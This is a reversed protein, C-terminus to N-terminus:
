PVAPERLLAALQAIEDPDFQAVQLDVIVQAFDQLVPRTFLEGLAVDVELGQRVRSIVRVALLSHGGLEFFHDCRGVREVGLVDAWIEALAEEIEDAPAEYEQAAYAGDDPAPLAGRDLKGSPTLPWAELRVYASPVMYEPLSAGLHARLSEADPAAGAVCYAVLREGGRADQRAVVLADRVAPHERLRAEIEGPEIRFGRVKLQFDTRGLFELTGDALWRARDGTRYLRAGPETAFPDPVFREATQGPRGLYGRAVGAGGICLEGAVGVPVPEGARDLVYVRTNAVPRGIPVTARGPEAVCRPLSAATAAESPGYLNHLEVGPVREGFRELLAGPLAEGGCLIRDLGTLNEVEREDLLVQLLSPVLNVTTIRERGIVELLYSPDRHGGPRALVVRAGAMLPLFIERVSGDFSLSTKCLVAERADIGWARRGWSLRNVLTRHQNMVGKPRGTSGSTYIVYALHEPTLAGRGPDTAPQRAWAPTSADLELVPVGAGEVRCRLATQSLVVAPASDALMHRLREAPYEPDLPVYAGGAKLVALLGVVMEPSRELCIGVPVDPGVGLSRLHHALRNARRNLEAYSLHVGEFAVAAADPTRAAQAEVLEHICSARPYDAATRNWEEVVRAREDPPLVEIRGLAREPAAELAGVLGAVAGHMMAAVRGAGFRGKVKATLAFDDGLDTVALTLPYNSREEGHITRMGDLAAPASSAAAAAGHRYNLLATFLPASADVASCRQALALSAHEHRLLKALLAHAQRVGAEAGTEGVPLRIPLTNIFPGMVRDSGEGGQMRGFLVTGFVVDDRGSTRALVQAWAVHFVSAASVGLARARERLRAALPGEVRVRAEDMGSGDSRVDLLGFPATPEDVDGLLETFFARHEDDSVGLRAQAVYNRFPLPPPLTDARGALYAEIESRLVEKATHDGTLHHDLLLLLWRGDAPDRAICLRLMPAERVDIRYHRPDFRARLQEAADGSAPDLAVEEVALSARRWVVQVPERLGEWAVSTRLIDHRDVVAQFAALYRDLGERTAFGYLIAALYPDGESSMLHHFLVGEQLRALPYIDQVNAAGGPVAAVVQDIEAQDLSVLPLMEPTIRECGPPIRNGPVEVGPSEGALEAALAVLTPAEFLAQVELHLGIERMRAIVQVALLSHGGLEFFNDHRGVRELELLEAWIGALAQETEGVPAEYARAAHAGGEASPLAARDLKGNPTLPWQELRVYAAPIMHEPLREGLHARLAEAGATADGVVYAVLREDGPGDERAVVVAERVGPHELLRAEIEGLEVRYGRVKVQHDTRGAFDLTGDPRWRGLDGTRYLRAGPRGGFPDPVFREATLGPRGLYG